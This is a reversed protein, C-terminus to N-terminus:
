DDDSPVPLNAQLARLMEVQAELWEVSKEFYRYSIRVDLNMLDRQLALTQSLFRQLEYVVMGGDEMGPSTGLVGKMLATLLAEDADGFAIAAKAKEDPTLFITAPRLECASVAKWGLELIFQSVWFGTAETSTVFTQLKTPTRQLCKSLAVFLVSDGQFRQCEHESEQLDMREKHATKLAVDFEKRIAEEFQTKDFEGADDHHEYPPMNSCQQYKDYAPPLGEKTRRRRQAEVNALGMADDLDSRLLKMAHNWHEHEEEHLDVRLQAQKWKATITDLKQTTETLKQLRDTALNQISCKERLLAHHKKAEAEEYLLRDLMLDQKLRLVGKDKAALADRLEAIQAEAKVLQEQLSYTENRANELDKQFAQIGQLIISSPDQPIAADPVTASSGPVGPATKAPAKQASKSPVTRAENNTEKGLLSSGSATPKAVQRGRLAQASSQPATQGAATSTGRHKSRKNMTSSLTDEDSGSLTSHLEASRKRKGPAASSATDSDKGASSSPDPLTASPSQSAMAVPRIARPRSGSNM